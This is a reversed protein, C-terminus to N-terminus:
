QELKSILPLLETRVFRFTHNEDEEVTRGQKDYSIKHGLNDFESFMMKLKLSLTTEDVKGKLEERFPKLLEEAMYRTKQNQRVTEEYLHQTKTYVEEMDRYLSNLKLNAQQAENRVSHERAVIEGHLKKNIRLSNMLVEKM